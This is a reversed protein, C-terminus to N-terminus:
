SCRRNTGGNHHSHVAVPPTITTAWPSWDKRKGDMVSFCDAGKIVLSVAVSNHRHPAARVRAAIHEDGGDADAPYQPHGGATRRFLDTRIRRDDRRPRHRLDDRDASRDGRRPLAGIPPRSAPPPRACIKSRSNRNTPSSGCCPTTEAAHSAAIGGPLVFLDGADWAIQEAAAFPPRWQRHDRLRDNRQGRLRDDADRRRPDPCLAGAGTADHRSVRLGVCALYRM